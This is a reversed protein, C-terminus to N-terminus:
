FLFHLFSKLFDTKLFKIAKVASTKWFINQILKCLSSVVGYIM